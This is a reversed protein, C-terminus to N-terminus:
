AISTCTCVRVGGGDDLPKPRHLAKKADAIRRNLAEEAEDAAEDLDDEVEFHQKAQQVQLCPSSAPGSTCCVQPYLEVPLLGLPLWPTEAHQVQWRPPCASQASIQISQVHVQLCPLATLGAPVPRCILGSQM